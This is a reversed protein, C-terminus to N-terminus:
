KPRATRKPKPGVMGGSEDDSVFCRYYDARKLKTKACRDVPDLDGLVQYPM